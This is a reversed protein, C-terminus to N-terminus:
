AGEDTLYPLLRSDGFQHMPGRTNVSPGSEKRIERWLAAWDMGARHKGSQGGDGGIDGAPPL